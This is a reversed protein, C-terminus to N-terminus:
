ANAVAHLPRGARESYLRSVLAATVNPDFQSGACRRLERFADANSMRARYPRDSTM